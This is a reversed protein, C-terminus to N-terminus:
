DLKIRSLALELDTKHKQLRIIAEKLKTEEKGLESYNIEQLVAEEADFGKAGRAKDLLTNISVLELLITEKEKAARNNSFRNMPVIDEEDLVPTVKLIPVTENVSDTFSIPIATAILEKFLGAIMERYKARQAPNMFAERYYDKEATVDMGAKEMLLVAIKIKDLDASTTNDPAQSTFIFRRLVEALKTNTIETGDNQACVAAVRKDFNLDELVNIENGVLGNKLFAVIKTQIM